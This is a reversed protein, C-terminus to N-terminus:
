MDLNVKIQKFLEVCEDLRNEESKKEMEDALKYINKIRLNGSVGKLKHVIKSIFQLDRKEIGEEISQIISPLSNKFSNFLERSTETDFGTEKVFAKMAENFITYDGQKEMKINAYKAILELMLKFDIPKSLYEDMGSALCKERDGAMVNATMAIITTHRKGEECSRIRSTSEYGDMVPMQCDMFIIDYSNTTAAAYAEYGDAAFDCFINHRKLVLEILKRNTENDEAVLIKMNRIRNVVKPKDQRDNPPTYSSGVEKLNLRNEEIVRISYPIGLKVLFSFKSGRGLQSNVGISGDMMEVLEKSIALGLGTGGFKRTTSADAQTFPKFLSDIDKQSIGIGTDEVEFYLVVEEKTKRLSKVSITITGSNTFKVANSMLNNLVQGLRGPDGEVINPVDNDVHIILELGKKHIAPKIAALSAEMVREISFNIKELSLKGAEIKSIDLIDNILHLLLESSARIEKIIMHQEKTLQYDDLLEIYGVIGNMPTRIEHSMNALFQSKMTNATEAAKRSNILEEEVKKLHTIDFITGLMRVPYNNEDWETIRGRDLVWIWSGNKHKMRKECEYYEIDGKFCLELLAESKILDLPHTYDQWTKIGMPSIEDLTYGIINAWQESFVATGTKVHWDWLGVRASNTAINLRQESLRIKEEMAIRDTIDIMVALVADEKEYSIESTKIIYTNVIGRKTIFEVEYDSIKEGTERKELMGIVRKRSPETLFEELNHNLIEDKGFGAAKIGSDNVFVIKGNRHILVIEPASNVIASYREESERVSIELAKRLTIDRAIGIIGTVINNNDIAPTKVTEYDCLSGDAMTLKLEFKKTTKSNIIEREMDDLYSLVESDKIYTSNKNGIIKSEQEGAFNEAFAKNCSILKGTTDKFYILDPIADIVSRLFVRQENVEQELRKTDTIDDFICAFQGKQPCFSYVSFYRNYTNSLYEINLPEETIGVNCYKAVMERDAQPSIELMTKGVIEDFTKGLLKQYAENVFLIRFDIPNGNVDTVVENLSFGRTMKKFIQIFKADYVARENMQVENQNEDVLKAYSESMIFNRGSLYFGNLLFQPIEM